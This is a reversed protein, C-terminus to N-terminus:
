INKRKKLWNKSENKIWDEAETETTFDGIQKMHDNVHIVYGSRDKLEVIRLVENDSNM